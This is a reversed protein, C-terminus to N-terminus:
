EGRQCHRTVLRTDCTPLRSYVGWIHGGRETSAFILRSMLDEIESLAASTDEKHKKVKQFFCSERGIKTQVFVGMIALFM